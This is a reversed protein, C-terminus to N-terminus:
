KCSNNMKVHANDAFKISNQNEKVIHSSNITFSFVLYKEKIWM